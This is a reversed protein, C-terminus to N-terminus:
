KLTKLKDWMDQIFKNANNYEYYHPFWDDNIVRVRQSNIYGKLDDIKQSIQEFKSKDWWEVQKLLDVIEDRSKDIGKKFDSIDLLPKDIWLSKNFAIDRKFDKVVKRLLERAEIVNNIDIAKGVYEWKKPLAEYKKITDDIFTLLEDPNKVIQEQKLLLYMNNIRKWDKLKLWEQWLKDLSNNWYESLFNIVYNEATWKPDLTPFVIEWHKDSTYKNNVVKKDMFWLNTLWTWWVEPFLEVEIWDAMYSINLRWEEAVQKIKWIDKLDIPKPKEWKVVELMQVDKIWPTNPYEKMFKDVFKGMDKPNLAVDLDWPKIYYDKLLVYTAMSSMYAYQNWQLLKDNIVMATEFRKLAEKSWGEITRSVTMFKELKWMSGLLQKAKTRIPEVVTEIWQLIEAWIMTSWVTKKLWKFVLKWWSMTLWIWTTVLWLQWFSRWKEYANWVFLDWISMWLQEAIKKLWEFSLLVDVMDKLVAWNTEYIQNLLDANWMIVEDVIWKIFQWWPWNKYTDRELWLFDYVYKELEKLRDNWQLHEIDKPPSLMIEEKDVEEMYKEFETMIKQYAKTEWQKLLSLNAEIEWLRDTYEKRLIEWRQKFDELQKSTWNESVRKLSSQFTSQFFAETRRIKHIILQENVQNGNDLQTDKQEILDTLRSIEVM